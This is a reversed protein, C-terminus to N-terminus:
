VGLGRGTEQLRYLGPSVNDVTMTKVGSFRTNATAPVDATHILNEESLITGTQADVFVNARYLPLEAYIDFKYAYRLEEQTNVFLVLEAKPYFTFAANNFSKRMQSTQVENEWMYKQANVKQLAKELAKSENLVVSNVPENYASLHGNLSVIKGDKSHTVIQENCVPVNNYTISFRQHTYGLDDTESKLKSIKFLDNLFTSNVFGETNSEFVSLGPKIKLFEVKGNKNFSIDQAVSNLVSKNQSYAFTSLGLSLSLAKLTLKKM